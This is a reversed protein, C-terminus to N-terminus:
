VFSFRSIRKKGENLLYPTDSLSHHIQLIKGKGEGGRWLTADRSLTCGTVYSNKKKLSM